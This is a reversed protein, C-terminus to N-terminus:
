TLTVFRWATNNADYVYLRLTTSNKYVKIQDFLIKPITTPAVSVTEFLGFIDTDLEMHPNNVGTKLDEIDRKIQDIDKKVQELDTPPM